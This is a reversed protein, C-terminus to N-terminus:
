LAVGQSPQESTPRVLNRHERVVQRSVSAVVRVDCVGGAGSPSASLFSCMGTLKALLGARESMSDEVPVLM